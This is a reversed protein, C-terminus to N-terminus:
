GSMWFDTIIQSLNGQDALVESKTLSLNAGLDGFKQQTAEDDNEVLVVVPVKRFDDNSRFGSLFAEAKAGPKTADLLILEAPKPPAAEFAALCATGDVYPVIAIKQPMLGFIPQIDSEDGVHAVVLDALTKDFIPM